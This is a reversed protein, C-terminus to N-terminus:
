QSKRRAPKIDFYAKHPEGGILAAEIWYGGPAAVEGKAACGGTSRRGNWTLSYVAAPDHRVVVQRALLADPCDTSSWVVDSGSTVRAVLSDPTIPLRCAGAPITLLLTATNAHGAKSDAVHITLNVKAPDCEGTPPPLTPGASGHGSTQTQRPHRAGPSRHQRGKRTTGDHKGAGLAGNRGPGSTSHHKGTGTGRHSRGMTNDHAPATRHRATAPVNRRLGAASSAGSGSGILWWWAAVLLVLCVALALFRRM